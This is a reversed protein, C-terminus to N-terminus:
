YTAKAEMIPNAFGGSEWYIKKYKETVQSATYVCASMWTGMIINVKEVTVLREAETMAAKSDSAADGIVLEIKKGWLGGKENQMEVAIKAGRLHDQGDEAAAGSLPWLAGIRVTKQAMASVAFGLQILFVGVLLYVLGRKREM